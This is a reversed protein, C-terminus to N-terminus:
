EEDKRLHKPARPAIISISLMEHSWDYKLHVAVHRDDDPMYRSNVIDSLALEYQPNGLRATEELILLSSVDIFGSRKKLSRLEKLFPEITWNAISIGALGLAKVINILPTNKRFNVEMSAIVNLPVASGYAMYCANGIRQYDEDKGLPVEGLPFIQYRGPAYVSGWTRIPTENGFEVPAARFEVDFLVIRALNKWRSVYMFRTGLHRRVLPDISAKKMELLYPGYIQACNEKPRLIVHSGCKEGTERREDSFYKILTQINETIETVGLIKKLQSVFTDDDSESDKFPVWRPVHGLNLTVGYTGHSTYLRMDGMCISDHEDDADYAIPVWQYIIVTYYGTRGPTRAITFFLDFPKVEERTFYTFSKMDSLNICRKLNGLVEEIEELNECRPDYNMLRASPTKIKAVKVDESCCQRIECPIGHHTQGDLETSLDRDKLYVQIRDRAGVSRLDIQTGAVFHHM